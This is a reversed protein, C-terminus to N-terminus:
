RKSGGAEWLRKIASEPLDQDWITFDRIEGDFKRKRDWADLPFAQVVPQDDALVVEQEAIKVGNKFVKVWRGDYTATLMQWKGLDLPVDSLTDKNAAWFNIGDAFKAFYRGTGTRGDSGRGFGAIITLNDPMTNPKVFINITFPDTSKVPIEPANFRKSVGPELAPATFVAGRESVELTQAQVVNANKALDKVGSVTLSEKTNLALPAALALEVTRSDNSLQASTVKAGSSFKYNEPSEASAQNVRESFVVRVLGLSKPSSASIVKPASTDRVNIVATTVPGVHGEADIEVAKITTPDSIVLPRDYLPSASTPTKGDLTYRLGGPRSYLPPAITVETADTFDGTLPSISPAGNDPDLINIGNADWKASGRDELHDYLPWAPAASDNTDKGVSVAFIHIKPNNPLTISTAGNLDFGYKFMYSRVYFTNGTPLHTHSATWAVECDKVYGPVLGVMNGYNQYNPGPDLAWLRNDWQGVYHTWDHFPVLGGREGIRLNGQTDGEAAALLYVHSYGAPLSVKQGKAQIANKAGNATSGLNFKVGDIELTKPFLEASIAQGSSGFQGDGRQSDPSVVDADYNLTVPQSSAQGVSAPAKALTLLFSKLGYGAIDTTLAGGAVSAPGVPMEQGNIEKASSISAFGKVHVGKQASGSHERLRVVVADSDEAKKIAQISVMSNDTSFLSFSKGLKGDHKEGVVFARLPQNFRQAAQPVNAARWTGAHPMISYTIDHRGFDQTAQDSYGGQVGPTYILTLRVTDTSPKDSGFKGENLIGVGKSGDPSSMDLWQHQPVEYKNPNNNGREIAGLQLDYTANENETTLPFAAKLAHEKTQWDITNQVDVKDSGLALSIRQVFKSGMAFRTVQITARIPGNEVVKIEAPGGVQATPPKQQDAWDMNWAPFQQPNEYQFELRTPSKLAEFSHKKDYISAIDGAENITVRLSDNEIVRGQASLTTQTENGVGRADYIAFGNAPVRANFLIYTGYADSGVTQTAVPKGDPGVVMMPKLPETYGPVKAQVLDTRDASTPNFIVLPTGQARTDMAKSVSSVASTEIAAFQNLALLDDNWCFEYAKPISTGPLMDHMQSGLFLDWANYLREAPYKMGGLWSAAISAREAGDALLENKRNWRKMYAQSTVSGASHEVLLLEGRYRPLKSIQGPQLDLFMQDSRSSIVKIPGKGNVSKEVWDVSSEGPAGGVDGTGYYHYDVFAGSLKGTNQIRALWSTNQSLDENVSGGYSGPDLAAVLSNGDPGEWNGVKFPIGVASHWTLKQTSFGQIGCHSLLSPLAYPFGFCDPLMFEQSAVGFEKRFFHNGYLVHRILSEGSPVNADAEDVSSGCPFWRGAAVYGKLRQYLDPYYERMMEYRRSGSFNFVYNPYKDILAFNDHLTNYIYERITQPYAWRWQTDLHAYPVVFMTNGKSLDVKTVPKPKITQQALSAGATLLCAGLALSRM